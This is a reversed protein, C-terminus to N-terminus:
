PYNNKYERPFNYCKIKHLRRFDAVVLNEVSFKMM